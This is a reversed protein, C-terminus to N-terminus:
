KGIFGTFFFQGDRAKVVQVDAEDWGLRPFVTAKATVEDCERDVAVITGSEDVCVATSHLYELEDLAKSHVFTGVFLKKTAAM